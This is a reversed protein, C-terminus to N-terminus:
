GGVISRLGDASRADAEGFEDATRMVDAGASAIEDASMGLCDFVYQAIETYAAGILSGIDDGGWPQGFGALQGQFGSVAAALQDASAQLGSGGARMGELDLEFGSM